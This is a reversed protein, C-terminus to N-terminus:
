HWIIMKDVNPTKTEFLEGVFKLICLGFPVDEWFIRANINPIVGGEVEM